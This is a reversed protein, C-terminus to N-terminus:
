KDDEYYYDDEELEGDEEFNWPDYNGKRVEEKQWDTLAYMDMEKELEEDYEDDKNFHKDLADAIFIGAAVDGFSIKEKEEKNTNVKIDSISDTNCSNLIRKIETQLISSDEVIGELIRLLVEENFKYKNLDESYKKFKIEYNRVLSDFSYKDKESIVIQNQNEIIYSNAKEIMESMKSTYNNIENIIKLPNEECRAKLLLAYIHKCNKQKDTYYPCTCTASEIKNLEDANFTISVKYSDTGDAICTYKNENQRVNRIKKESYYTEGRRRIQTEFLDDYINKDFLGLKQKLDNVEINPIPKITSNDFVSHVINNVKKKKAKQESKKCIWNIFTIIGKVIAVIAEITWKILFFGIFIMITLMTALEKTGDNKRRRAM